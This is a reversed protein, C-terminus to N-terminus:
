AVMQIPAFEILGKLDIFYTIWHFENKNKKESAATLSCLISDNWELWFVKLNEESEEQLHNKPYSFTLFRRKMRRKLM